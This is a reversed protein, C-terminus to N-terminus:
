PGARPRRQGGHAVLQRASLDLHDARGGLFTAAALNAQDFAAHELGHVRGHHDVAEVAPDQVLVQEADRARAELEPALRRM